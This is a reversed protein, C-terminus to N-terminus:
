KKERERSFMAILLLQESTARGVVWGASQQFKLMSIEEFREAFVTWIKEVTIVM